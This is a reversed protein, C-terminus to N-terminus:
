NKYGTNCYPHTIQGNDVSALGGDEKRQIHDISISNRHILGNCIKCKPANKLADKIYIENKKNTNFDQTSSPIEKNITRITLYQFDNSSIIENIVNGIIKETQLNTVIKQFIKSVDKYSKHVSKYKLYIQQILYDYKILCEEFHERVQIFDDIKKRKDLEIVFDVVALLSVTRHRGDKSYFYIVPHLGLSSCHNSNLRYVLKRTNKLIQITAEGTLDNNIGKNNFDLNNVVNM